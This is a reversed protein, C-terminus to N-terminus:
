RLFRVRIVPQLIRHALTQQEGLLQQEAATVAAELRAVDSTVREVLRCLSDLGRFQEELVQLSSTTVAVCM